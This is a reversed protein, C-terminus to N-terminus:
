RPTLSFPVTTTTGGATVKASFRLKAKTRRDSKKAITLTGTRTLLRFSTSGGKPITIRLRKSSLRKISASNKTSLKSVSAYKSPRKGKQSALSWGKPLTLEVKTIAKGAAATGTLRLTPKGKRVGTLRGEFRAGSTNLAQGCSTDLTRTQSQGSHAAFKAAFTVKAASCLKATAIVPGGTGGAIDIQLATLPLDPIADFATVLQGSKSDVATTGAVRGAFRGTFSLGLGPLTKGAPPKLLYIDGGLPEDTITLAGSVKGIKATDPCTGAAFADQACARPLQALDVGVGVPLTVITQRLAGSGAPNQIRVQINPRGLAGTAGTVAAEFTPQFPLAECGTVAYGATVDATTGASSTLQSTTSLPGCNTPNLAFDPRDLAVTLERINLPIGKFREPVDAIFRLGLDGERIDIRAPVVLVGLDVEGFAIPVQLSVGAVAGDPRQTLFIEGGTRYPAPGVGAVANITGIKTAAACNAAAADATSCEPVGKLVALEGAPLNVVAKTIRASRDARTLTTSFAGTKGAAPNAGSFALTPAFGGAAECDADITLNADSSVAAAQAAYSFAALAGKTTGCTPPTTLASHDGGRFTLAFESVPQQPLGDLTTVVRNQDDVTLHGVLKVRPADDAPGLQAEIYIDPLEGPAPQSGLYANGTLPNALVPSTFKVTGVATNAPCANHPAANVGFQEPKCLPLGDAGSAIQGSLAIGTPLTVVTQKPGASVRPDDFVGFKVKVTTETTVDPRRESTSYEVSPAFPATDCDTLRYSSAKTSPAGDYARSTLTTTQDTSCDSGLLGYSKPMSPHDTKSGWFRLAFTDTALARGCGSVLIENTCATKPLNDIIARLGLDPNPRFTVRALIKVKPQGVVLTPDLIIGLRAVENGTHELNFVRGPVNTLTQTGLLQTAVRINARVDGMQSNAPCSVDATNAAYNFQANTCQPSGDPNGSFGRPTDVILQEMDDGGPGSPNDVAYAVCLDTRASGQTKPVAGAGTPSCTSGATIPGAYLQSIPAAAQAGAASWGLVVLVAALLAVAAHLSRPAAVASVARSAAVVSRPVAVISRPAAVISRPAVVTLPAAGATLAHRTLRAPSTSSM